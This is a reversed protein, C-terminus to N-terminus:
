RATPALGRFVHEGSSGVAGTGAIRRGAFRSDIRSQAVRLRDDLASALWSHSLVTRLHGCM